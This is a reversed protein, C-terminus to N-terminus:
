EAETPDAHLIVERYDDDTRTPGFNRNPQAMRADNTLTYRGRSGTYIYIREENLLLFAPQRGFLDVRSDEFDDPVDGHAHAIVESDVPTEYEHGRSEHNSRTQESDVVVGNHLVYDINCEDCEVELPHSNQINVAGQTALRGHIIFREADEYHEDVFNFVGRREPSTAKLVDYQFQEDEEKVAVVGLSSRMSRYLLM